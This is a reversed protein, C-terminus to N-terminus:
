AQTDRFKERQRPIHQLAAYDKAGHALKRDSFRLLTGGVAITDGDRLIPSGEAKVGNIATGNVSGLDTLRCCGAAAAHFIRFHHRSVRDDTLQVQCAPDRGITAGEPTASEDFPFLEGKNPGVLVLVSAM